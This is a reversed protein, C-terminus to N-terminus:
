EPPRGHHVESRSIESKGYPTRELIAPLPADKGLRYGLPFYVDTALRVGDRMPVMIDRLLALTSDAPLAGNRLSADTM